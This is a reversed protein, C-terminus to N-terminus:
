APMGNRYLHAEVANAGVRSFAGLTFIREREPDSIRGDAKSRREAFASLTTCRKAVVGFFPVQHGRFFFSPVQKIVPFPKSDHRKEKDRNGNVLIM